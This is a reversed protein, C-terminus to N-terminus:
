FMSLLFTENVLSLWGQESSPGWDKDESPPASQVVLLMSYPVKSNRRNCAFVDSASYMFLCCM